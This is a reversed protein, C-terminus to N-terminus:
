SATACNYVRTAIGRIATSLGASRGTRSEILLIPNNNTRMVGRDRLARMIAAFDALLERTSRSAPDYVVFRLM